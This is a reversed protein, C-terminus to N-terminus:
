QASKQGENQERDPQGDDIGEVVQGKANGDPAHSVEVLRTQAGKGFSARMVFLGPM